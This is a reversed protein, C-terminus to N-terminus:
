KMFVLYSLLTLVPICLGILSNIFYGQSYQSPFKFIITTYIQKNILSKIATFIYGSNVKQERFRGDVISHALDDMRKREIIQDLVAEM